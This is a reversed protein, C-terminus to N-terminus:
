LTGQNSFTDPGVGFAALQALHDASLGTIEFALGRRKRDQAAALLCQLFPADLRRLGGAAIEVCQDAHANLFPMLANEETVSIRGPLTFVRPSM